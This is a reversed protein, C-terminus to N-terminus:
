KEEKEINTDVCVLRSDEKNIILREYNDASGENKGTPSSYIFMSDIDRIKTSFIYLSFLQM